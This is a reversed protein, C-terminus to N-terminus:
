DRTALGPKDYCGGTSEGMVACVEPFHNFRYGKRLMCIHVYKDIKTAVEPSDSSLENFRQEGDLKCTDADRNAIEAASPGCASLGIAFLVAPRKM